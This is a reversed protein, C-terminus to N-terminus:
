MSDSYDTCTGELCESCGDKVGSCEAKTTCTTGCSPPIKCVGGVCATCGDKAGACQGDKTCAVNCAPTPRCVNGTGADNPLCATCGDKAGQCDAPTTCTTNCAPLVKCVGGVCATCGDKAGACQGDKTCAVNCAPPVRCQGAVCQTCGQNNLTCDNDSSCFANCAPPPPPQCINGSGDAKPVCQTCGDKIGQCDAPTTCVDGCVPPKSCVNQGSANPKCDTCGDKAGECDAPTTCSVNCAPPPGCFFKYELVGYCPKNPSGCNTESSEIQTNFSTDSRGLGNQIETAGVLVKLTHEGRDTSALGTNLEYEANRLDAPTVAKGPPTYVIFGNQKQHINTIITNNRPSTLNLPNVPSNDLYNLVATGHGWNACQASFGSSAEVKVKIKSCDSSVEASSDGSSDNQSFDHFNAFASANGHWNRKMVINQVTASSNNIPQKTIAGAVFPDVPLDIRQHPIKALVDPINLLADLWNENKAFTLSLSFAAIFLITATVQGAGPPPTTQPPPPPHNKKRKILFFLVFAIFGVILVSFLILILKNGLKDKPEGTGAKDKNSSLYDKFGAVLVGGGDKIAALVKPDECTKDIPIDIRIDDWSIKDKPLLYDKGGCLQGISNKIQLQLVPDNLDTGERDNIKPYLEKSAGRWNLDLSPGGSFSVQAQEGSKYYSKNLSLGSIIASRGKVIWRFPLVSTIVNGDQDVLTVLASYVQPKELAPLIIKVDKTEGPGITINESSNEQELDNRNDIVSDVSYATRYSLTVPSPTTNTVNCYGQPNIGSGINPGETSVYKFGDILIYCNSIDTKLFRGAGELSLDASGYAIVNAQSDTAEAFLTYDGSNINPSYDVAFQFVRKEGEKISFNDSRYYNILDKGGIIQHANVGQGVQEAPKKLYLIATYYVNAYNSDTNNEIELAGNIKSGGTNVDKLTIKLEGASESTAAAARSFQPPIFLSLAIILWYASPM